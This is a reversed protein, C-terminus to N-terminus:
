APATTAPGRSAALRQRAADYAKQVVYGVVIVVPLCVALLFLLGLTPSAPDVLAHLGKYVIRHFLYMAFSAYSLMGIAQALGGDRPLPLRAALLFIALAGFMALPAAALSFQPNGAIVLSLACAAIAALSAWSASGMSAGRGRGAWHIGLAFAPFYEAIRIDGSAARGALLALAFLALSALLFRLRADRLAILLPAVLYFVLIMTIFWLTNPPPGYAMSLGLAAKLAIGRDALGVAWFGLLALLYLPYIRLFRKTYFRQLAQARLRLPAQALLFGSLFTFLGLVIVTLRATAANNYAVFGHTYDMLHWFGVIYLVCVARLLDISLSKDNDAAAM